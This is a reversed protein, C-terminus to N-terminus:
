DAMDTAVPLEGAGGDHFSFLLRQHQAKMLRIPEDFHKDGSLEM